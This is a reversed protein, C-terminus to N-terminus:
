VFKRCQRWRLAFWGILPPTYYTVMRCTLAAAFAIAAVRVDDLDVAAEKLDRRLRTSMVAQQLEASVDALGEAGLAAYPLLGAFTM